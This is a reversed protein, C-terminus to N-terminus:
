KGIGPLGVRIFRTPHRRSGGFWAELDARVIKWVRMVERIVVVDTADMVSFPTINEAAHTGFMTYPWEKESTLALLELGEGRVEDDKEPPFPLPARNVEADPWVNEPPGDLVRLCLPMCAQFSLKQSWRANLMSELAGPFVKVSENSTQIRWNQIEKTLMAVREELSVQQASEAENPMDRKISGAAANLRATAVNWIHYRINDSPVARVGRGSWAWQRLSSIAQGELFLAIKYFLEFAMFEKPILVRERQINNQIYDEPDFICLRMAVDETPVIGEGISRLFASLKMDTPPRAGRLLVVEVNADLTCLPPALAVASQETVAADSEARSRRRSPVDNSGSASPM